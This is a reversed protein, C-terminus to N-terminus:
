PHNSNKKNLFPLVIVNSNKHKGTKKNNEKKIYLMKDAKELIQEPFDFSTNETSAIGYSISIPIFVGKISLPNKLFFIKHRKMLKEAHKVDTEPLIIVFEDGAFRAVIDSKRSKDFLKDAVYKLLKDGANHGYTDNARKFNDLDIFVVSLINDYRIAKNFERKLANEMVRRNLLGTLPDHYALTKLKEHATVNSLCLSIKLGLAELSDTEFDTSYRFPSPDALNLSGIIEGDIFIPVIAISGAKNKIIDPILKIYKYLHDNTLIPQKGNDILKSFINKKIFSIKKILVSSTQLPKILDSLVSPEIISFWVYPINFIEKIKTLLIEFFDKYNLIAVIKIEIANFKKTIDENNKAVEKYVLLNQIANDKEKIKELLRKIIIDKEKNINNM